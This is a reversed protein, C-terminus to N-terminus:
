TQCKTQLNGVPTTRDMQTPTQEDETDPYIISILDHPVLTDSKVASEPSAVEHDNADDSKNESDEDGDEEVEDDKEEGLGEEEEELAEGGGRRGFWGFPGSSRPSRWYIQPRSKSPTAFPDRADLCEKNM